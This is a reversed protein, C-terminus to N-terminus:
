NVVKGDRFQWRELLTTEYVNGTARTVARVDFECVLWDPDDCSYIRIVDLKEIAFTEGFVGLFQLFGDAGRYIGRYPMGSGQELVLDPDSLAHLTTADGSLAAAVFRQQVELNSAAAM